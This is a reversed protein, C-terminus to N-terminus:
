DEAVPRTSGNRGRKMERSLWAKAVNWERKVTSRSSGLLDAIEEIALGGFFRLEVIRAQQEDMRALATLADDLAIMELPAAKPVVLSIDLEVQQNAGRKAAGHHRAHDVLVQRMLRSAVALFHARDRTEFPRQDVLRLYAEHVLAASQLMHGPREGQLHRRAIGRLEEYVLPILRQLAEDDGARWRALLETIPEPPLQLLEGWLIVVGLHRL